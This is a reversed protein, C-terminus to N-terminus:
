HWKIKSCKAAIQLSAATEGCNQYTISNHDETDFIMLLHGM